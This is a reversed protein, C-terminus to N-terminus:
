GPVIPTVLGNAAQVGLARGEARSADLREETLAHRLAALLQQRLDEEFPELPADREEEAQECVGLLRATREHEGLSAAALGYWRMNEVMLLADAARPAVEAAAVAFDIAQAPQRLYTSTEALSVLSTAECRAQGRSRVFPLNDALLQRAREHRGTRNAIFALNIRCSSMGVGNDDDTAAVLAEEFLAEAAQLDDHLMAARAKEKLAVFRGEAPGLQIALAAAEDGAVTAAAYDGQMYSLVGLGSYLRRRTVDESPDIALAQEIWRRGEAVQGRMVWFMPLSAAIGRVLDAKGNEVGHSFAARLNELEPTLLAIWREEPEGARVQEDVRAALDAFWAAHRAAFKDREGSEGLRESAFHGISDLMGYRPAEGPEGERQVLSREVLTHLTELDAAAIAEAAELTCGGAFVAMRRFLAREPESLLDHSWEITARLTRQRPDADRPGAFLDLRQSLRDLVQEVSLVPLRSAALQLALPLRDLRRVLMSLAESPRVAAGLEAARAILLEEAATDTLVPLRMAREETLKLPERSTVLLKSQGANPMLEGIATTLEPLLHEANDVVLLVRRERLYRAVEEAANDEALGLTRAILAAVLSPERVSALPIWWRGAPFLNATSAAAELALRTKGLGGPGVLTLMRVSPDALLDAVERLEAERGIFTGSPEPLNSPSLTKLAPHEEAGLQYLREPAAIDKLRHEGLDTLTLDLIGEVLAATTSSVLVQGGHGAAAIRAARHVDMGVYGEDTRLPTGTHLGMRVKLGIPEMGAQAERAANVAGSATAFVAFIADGETDVELGGHREVAERLVRRHEALVDAYASEGLADLMRTSGEVDTFLFTVTGAPLDPRGM